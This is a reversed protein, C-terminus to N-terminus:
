WVRYRWNLSRGRNDRKDRPRPSNPLSITHRLRPSPYPPPELPCGDRRGADGILCSSPEHRVPFFGAGVALRHLVAILPDLAALPALRVLHGGAGYGPQGRLLADHDRVVLVRQPGALAARARQLVEMEPLLDEVEVVLPDRLPHHV